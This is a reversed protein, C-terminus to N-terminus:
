LYRLLLCSQLTQNYRHSEKSKKKKDPNKKIFVEKVERAMWVM